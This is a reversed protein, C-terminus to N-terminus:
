AHPDRISEIDLAGRGDRSSTFRFTIPGNLFLGNPVEGVVGDGCDIIFDRILLDLSADAVDSGQSRHVTGRNLDITDGPLAFSLLTGPAIFDDRQLAINAQDIEVLVVGKAGIVTLMSNDHNAIIGSDECLGLGYRVGEEACAVILRGLRRASSLNQDVIGVGFFGLGEQIVLGRRGMDSAIGFRLAEYSTGGAIMFGSLAASAGSVAIITAGAAYARAIALLVPTVEGRHLLSEVLRIQNGGTLVITKLSAIQEIVQKDRGVREINDISIKFDIVEVGREYLSRAYSSAEKRPEASASAIIGVPGDCHQVVEDLLLSGPKLPTSGLLLLKSALGAKVGYDRNLASCRSATLQTKNLKSHTMAALFNIASIRVSNDRVAILSQSIRQVREFEVTTAIATKPEIASARDLTYSDPDGLVLRALLDYLTYAGFVNRLSRVPARYAMDDPTVAQKDHGPIAQAHNLDFGDGDDLYTLAIREVAGSHRDFQAERMDLVFAGYEGIVHAQTGDVFFATNEDVGFGWNVGSHVMAVALRGFRGRKIFHQDVIGWRFFGLGRGLLMGPQKPDTIVGYTAAELSTGGVIMTDSMMAAGASSGAVLGGHAHMERIAKLVATEVGEPALARTILAQDGGTFFVSGYGRVLEVVAPDEAAATAQEGHVTALVADFGQARLVAVTEAGVVDPESSATAFVVIRGQSLRCMEGYVAHNDDELRGGIVALKPLRDNSTFRNITSM